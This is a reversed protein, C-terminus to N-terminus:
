GVIVTIKVAARRLAGVVGSRTAARAFIFGLYRDGDPPPAVHSGVAASIEVSWVGDVNRADDVGSVGRLTGSRPIPLMFAGTAGPTPAVSRKKAGIAQQLVLSELSYGMLGFTLARGCHGGITRAAVEIVVPRGNDIRLEAHVPGHELGIADISSQTIRQVEGVVSPPLNTPSVFMTEEFFPGDLPDPKDLIALIELEGDWVLGEVTIERGPVFREVLLRGNTEELHAPFTGQIREVAAQLAEEDDARIVGRSASLGVPKVVVPWGISSAAEVADASGIVERFMPQPVEAQGLLRRMLVKDRTALAAETPNHPLGILESARAAIVVGTDDASVITDVPTSAALDAIARASAEVNDCDIPVFRDEMGLPPAAESALALEVGLQEAAAVYDSVQYSSTPLIVLARAM